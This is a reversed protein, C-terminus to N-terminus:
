QEHGTTRYLYERVAELMLKQGTAGQAAALNKLRIYVERPLKVTMPVIPKVDNAQRAESEKNQLPERAYIMHEKALM